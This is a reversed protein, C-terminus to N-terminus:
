EGVPSGRRACHCCGCAMVTLLASGPKTDTQADASHCAVPLSARYNTTGEHREADESEGGEELLLKKADQFEQAAAAQLQALVEQLEKSKAALSAEVGELSVQKSSVQASLDALAAQRSSLESAADAAAKRTRDCCVGVGCCWGCSQRGSPHHAAQCLADCPTSVQDAVYM